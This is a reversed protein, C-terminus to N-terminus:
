EREVTLKETVVPTKIDNFRHGFINQFGKVRYEFDHSNTDEFREHRTIVATAGEKTRAVLTRNLESLLFNGDDGQCLGTEMSGAYNTWFAYGGQGGALTYQKHYENYLNEANLIESNKSSVFGNGDTILIKTTNIGHTELKFCKKVEDQILLSNTTFGIVRLPITLVKIVFNYVKEADNFDNKRTGRAFPIQSIVPPAFFDNERSQLSQEVLYHATVKNGFNEKTTNRDSSDTAFENTYSLPIEGLNHSATLPNNDDDMMRPIVFDSPNEYYTKEEELSVVKDRVLLKTKYLKGVSVILEMLNMDPVPNNKPTKDKEVGKHETDGLLVLNELEPKDLISSEFSYGLYECAKTILTKVPICYYSLKKPKNKLFEAILKGQIGVAIFLEIRIMILIWPKPTEPPVPIRTAEQIMRNNISMINMTNAIITFFLSILERSEMELVYGVKQYDSSNITGTEVLKRLNLIEARDTFDSFESIIYLDATCKTYENKRTDAFGQKLIGISPDTHILKCPIPAIGNEAFWKSIVEIGNIASEDFDRNYVTVPDDSIPVANFGGDDAVFDLTFGEQKIKVRQGNLELILPM